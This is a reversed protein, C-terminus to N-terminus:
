PTVQATAKEPFLLAVREATLPEFGPQMLWVRLCAEAQEHTPGPWDPPWGAIVRGHWATRHAIERGDPLLSSVRALAIM